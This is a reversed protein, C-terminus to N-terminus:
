WLTHPDVPILKSIAALVPARLYHSEGVTRARFVDPLEKKKENKLGTDDKVLM